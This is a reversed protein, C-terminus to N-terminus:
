RRGEAAEPRIAQGDMLGDLARFPGVIVRDDPGLGSLIEVRREDSIGTEVPRARAVGDEWVFVVKAYRMEGDRATEGPSRANREVWARLEPTDPLDKRHRHVVAQVPIGLNADSRKVEIEASASMGSRLTPGPAVSVLTEFIVTGASNKGKASVRDVVGRIPERPGSQLYILVPQGARVWPVDSEDVEARVRMREPDAVTMLVTGPLNTTGAIIVEGVDVNIGSVVGDIPSRIETWDLAQQSTRLMSQSEALDHKNMSLVATAKSQLSRSDLLETSTSAGRGLLRGLLLTDRDAKALDAEAQDIMARIHDIRAHASDLRARSETDDVKVLLGGRSVVDGDKVHVAVVRGLVQSAIQAEVVPEVAGPTIISQVIPGRSPAELIVETAPKRVIRWDVKVAGLDRQINAAALVVVLISAGLFSFIARYM